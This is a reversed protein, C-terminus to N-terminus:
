RPVITSTLDVRSSDLDIQKLCLHVKWDPYNETVNEGAPLWHDPGYEYFLGKLEQDKLKRDGDKDHQSLQSWSQLEDKEIQRNRNQDYAFRMQITTMMSSLRNQEPDTYTAGANGNLLPGAEPQLLRILEWFAPDSWGSKM